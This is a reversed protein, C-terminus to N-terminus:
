TARTVPQAVVFFHALRNALVQWLDDRARIDDVFARASHADGHSHELVIVEAQATGFLLLTGALAFGLRAIYKGIGRLLATGAFLARAALILTFDLEQEFELDVVDDVPQPLLHLEGVQLRADPRGVFRVPHAFTPIPARERRSRRRENLSITLRRPLGPAVGVNM